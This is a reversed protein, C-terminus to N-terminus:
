PGLILYGLNKSVEFKENVWGLAWFGFAWSRDGVRM